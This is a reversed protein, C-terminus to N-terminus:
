CPPPHPNPVMVCVCMWGDISFCTDRPPLPPPLLPPLLPFPASDCVGECVCVYCVIGYVNTYQHLVCEIWVYVCM